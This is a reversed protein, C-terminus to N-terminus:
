SPPASGIEDDGAPAPMSKVKPPDVMRDLGLGGIFAVIVTEIIDRSSQKTALGVAIAPLTALVFVFAHRAFDSKLKQEWLAEWRKAVFIVIFLMAAAILKGDGSVLYQAIQNSDM